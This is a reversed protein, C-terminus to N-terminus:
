AGHRLGRAYRAIGADSVLFSFCCKWIALLWLAILEFEIVYIKMQSYSVWKIWHHSHDKLKTRLIGWKEKEGNVHRGLVSSLCACDFHM